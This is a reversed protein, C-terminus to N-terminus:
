DYQFYDITHPYFNKNLTFEKFSFKSDEPRNLQYVGLINHGPISYPVSIEAQDGRTTHVKSVLGNSTYGVYLKYPTKTHRGLNYGAVWYTWKFNESTSIYSTRSRSGAVTVHYIQSTTITQTGPDGQLATPIKFGDTFVSRSERSTTRFNINRDRSVHTVCRTGDKMTKTTIWAKYIPNWYFTQNEPLWDHAAQSDVNMVINTESIDIKRIMTHTNRGLFNVIGKTLDSDTAELTDTEGWTSMPDLRFIDNIQNAKLAWKGPQYLDWSYETKACNLENVKIEHELTCIEKNDNKIKACAQVKIIGASKPAKYRTLAVTRQFRDYLGQLTDPKNSGIIVGAMNIYNNFVCNQMPPEQGLIPVKCQVLEEGDIIFRINRTTGHVVRAQLTIPEGVYPSTNTIELLISNNVQSSPLRKEKSINRLVDRKETPICSNVFVGWVWVKGDKQIAAGGGRQDPYFTIISREADLPLFPTHPITDKQNWIDIIPIKGVGTLNTPTLLPKPYTIDYGLYRYLSNGWVYFDGNESIARSYDNLAYVSKFKVNPLVMVPDDYVKTNGQGLQGKDNNGSAWLRGDKDIELSHAEGTSKIRWINATPNLGTSLINIPSFQNIRNGNGLQCKDNQGWSYMYGASDIAYSSNGMTYVKTINQLSPVQTPRTVTVDSPLDLGLQGYDNKGSAWVNGMDDVMLVHSELERSKFTLNACGTLLSLTLAFFISRIALRKM